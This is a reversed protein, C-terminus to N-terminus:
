DGPPAVVTVDNLMAWHLDGGVTPYGDKEDTDTVVFFTGPYSRVAFGILAEADAFCASCGRVGDCSCPQRQTYVSLGIEADAALRVLEDVQEPQDVEVTAHFQRRNSM